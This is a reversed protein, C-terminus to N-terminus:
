NAVHKSAKEETLQLAKRGSLIEIDAMDQLTKGIQASNPGAHIFVDGAKIAGRDERVNFLKMCGSKQHAYKLAAQYIGTQRISTDPKRPKDEDQDDQDDQADGEQGHSETALRDIALFVVPRALRSSVNIMQDVQWACHNLSHTDFFHVTTGFRYPELAKKIDDRFLKLRKTTLTDDVLFAIIDACSIFPNCEDGKYFIKTPAAKKVVSWGKTHRSRFADIHMELDSFSSGQHEWVYSLATLYSFTQGLGDIFKITPIRKRACRVGGVEVHTADPTPLAIYSCHVSEIHDQVRSVLQNAFDAAEFISLYDKLCTSSFFPTTYDLDFEERLDRSAEVYIEAFKEPEPITVGVGLQSVFTRTKEEDTGDAGWRRKIRQFSKADFAVIKLPCIRM